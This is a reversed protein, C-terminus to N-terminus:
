PDSDTDGFYRLLLIQRQLQYVSLPTSICKTTSLILFNYLLGHRWSLGLVATNISTNSDLPTSPPTVLTSDDPAM